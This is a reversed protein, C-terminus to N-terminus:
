SELTYMESCFTEFILIGKTKYLPTQKPGKENRGSESNTDGPWIINTKRWAMKIGNIHLIHNIIM